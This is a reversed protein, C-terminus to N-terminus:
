FIKFFLSNKLFNLYKKKEDNYLTIFNTLEQKLSIIEDNRDNKEIKSPKASKFEENKILIEEKKPQFTANNNIEKKPQPAEKKEKKLFSISPKKLDDEDETAWYNINKHVKKDYERIDQVKKFHNM